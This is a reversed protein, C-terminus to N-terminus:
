MPGCALLRFGISGGGHESTPCCDQRMLSYYAVDCDVFGWGEVPCRHGISSASQCTHEGTGFFSPTDARAAAGRPMATDSAVPSVRPKRAGGAVDDVGGVSGCGGTLLVIATVAAAGLSRFSCREVMMCGGKTCLIDGTDGGGATHVDEPWREQM